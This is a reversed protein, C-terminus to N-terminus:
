NQFIWKLLHFIGLYESNEKVFFFISKSSIIKSIKLMKSFLLIPTSNTLTSSSSPYGKLFYPQADLDYKKCLNFTTHCTLQVNKEMHCSKPVQAFHLQIAHVQNQFKNRPSLWLSLDVLLTKNKKRFIKAEAVM